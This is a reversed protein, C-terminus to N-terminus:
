ALILAHDRYASSPKQFKGGARCIASAGFTTKSFNGSCARIRAPFALGAADFVIVLDCPTPDPSTCAHQIENLLAKGQPILFNRAYGPKVKVFGLTVLGAKTYRGQLVPLPFMMTANGFSVNTRYLGTVRYRHKDMTLTDGLGKHIAQALQYGLMVEDESATRYSRGELIVVGFRRQADPDLGVQIVGPNAADYRDLQVLAGISAEVGPVQGVARIDATSITSNLVNDVHRQAVTLDANGVTLIGTASAKLSSTLTGLAVVAMVAIAVAVGTLVSRMRRAGVNNFILGIFTVVPVLEGKPMLLQRM